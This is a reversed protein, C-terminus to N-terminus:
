YIVYGYGRGQTGRVIHRNMDQEDKVNCYM